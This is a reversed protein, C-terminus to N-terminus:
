QWCSTNPDVWQQIILLWELTTSKLMLHPIHHMGSHFKKFGLHWSYNRQFLFAFTFPLFLSITHKRWCNAWKEAKKHCKSSLSKLMLGRLSLGRTWVWSWSIPFSCFVTKGPLEHCKYFRMVNIWSIGLPFRGWILHKGKPFVVCPITQLFFGLNGARM